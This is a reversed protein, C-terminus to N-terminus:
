TEVFSKGMFQDAMQEYKARYEDREKELKDVREVLDLRQMAWGYSKDKTKTEYKKLLKRLFFSPVQEADKIWTSVIMSKNKFRQMLTQMAPQDFATQYDAFSVVRFNELQMTKGVKELVTDRKQQVLTILSFVFGELLMSHCQHVIPIGMAENLQDTTITTLGTHVLLWNQRNSTQISPTKRPPPM